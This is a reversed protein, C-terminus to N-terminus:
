SVREIRFWSQNAITEFKGGDGARVGRIDLVDSVSLLVEVGPLSVTVYPNNNNRRYGTSVTEEIRTGNKYFSILPHKRTNNSGDGTISYSLKYTGERIITIQNSSFTYAHTDYFNINQWDVIVPSSINLNQTNTKIGQIREVPSFRIWDNTGPGTKRWLSGDSTYSVFSGIPVDEGIPTTDSSFFGILSGPGLVVGDPYENARQPNLSM